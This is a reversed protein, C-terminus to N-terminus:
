RPLARRPGARSLTDAADWVAHAVERAVKSQPSATPWAACTRWCCWACPPRCRGSSAWRSNTSKRTPTSSPPSSNPTSCATPTRWTPGPSATSARCARGAAARGAQAPARLLPAARRRPDAAAASRGPPLQRAAMRGGADRLARQALDARHLRLRPAALRPKRRRAPLVASQATSRADHEVVQARALSRGHQEFRQRRVARRPDAAEVPDHPRSLLRRAYDSLAELRDLVATNVRM